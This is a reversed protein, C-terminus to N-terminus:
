TQPAGGPRYPENRHLLGVFLGVGKRATLALARKHQHKTVQNFKRQYFAAYEPISQRMSNAAEILFYRLYRNGAKSMHRDQAEFDGSDQRPWWLGAMKAVADEADRLNRPRFCKHKKDWKTGQLFRSTDGIEAGIGASFVPGIGPITTLQHVAALPGATHAALEAGIWDNVLQLQDELFRIHDLTLTLIRQVPLILAEPLPFSEQAAQHLKHANDQPACLHHGSLEHFQDALTHLPLAALDDLTPHATLILRSTAGFVDAFPKIRHYASAKLFLFASFYCKERAVNHVVHFRLRTYFRLALVTDDCSWATPPRHTRTREAIYFPDRQGTKNDQAFCKKFWKVWRPNLAFLHLNHPSLDPDAALQLFFPLWYYGTAEGSVDIGDFDYRHLADLLLAKALTYGSRSNAFAQHPELPQGDPFLLCFDAKKQSFDIGVQLRNTM